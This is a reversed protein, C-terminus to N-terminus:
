AFSTVMTVNHPSHFSGFYFIHRLIEAWLRIVQHMGTQDSCANVRKRRSFMPIDGAIRLWKAERGPPTKTDSGGLHISRWEVRTM